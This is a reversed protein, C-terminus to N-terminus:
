NNNFISQEYPLLFNFAAGGEPNNEAWIRGHHATVIELCIALGLGTGGAGTKTKSSQTFKDFITDLENEPIGIGEDKITFQLAPITQSDTARRGSPLQGPHFSMAIKGGEPSFKVANSLLNQIVQSIKFHDCVVVTSVKPPVVELVIEKSELIPQIELTNNTVQQPLDVKRMEYDMKGSELRSLDLLDNLLTMLREGTTRIQSFYHLLKEKPREIKEIGFKSYCLIHHMPTRLEHSINALFESKSRNAAEAEHTASRLKKEMERRDANEQLLQQNSRTLQLTRQEVRYELEDHAKKLAMEAQKHKTIDRLISRFRVVRGKVDKMLSISAEVFSRKGDKGIIQYSTGKEPQGTTFVQNFVKFVTAANEDDTYERYNMNALEDRSYGFIRSMSDNLFTFNGDLDSEFYGDEINELIARYKEESQRLAEEVQRHKAIERQLKENSVELDRTREDVLEELYHHQLQLEKEAQKRRTIDTAISCVSTVNGKPDYLPFKVSLYCHDGDTQPIIEEFERTTKSELTKRDNAQLAEAVQKPIIEEDRKGYIEAPSVHFLEQFRRNIFLYRGQDDRITILSMTNNLMAQFLTEKETTIRANEELARQVEIIKGRLEDETRKIRLMAKIRVVLEMNDVPKSIFDNAGAELGKVILEPSKEYGTILIVPIDVTRPDTKLMRCMEIGNMEPMQIDLLIVDPLHKVCLSLGDRPRTAVLLKLQPLEEEVLLQIHDLNDQRDDVALITPPPSGDFPENSLIQM